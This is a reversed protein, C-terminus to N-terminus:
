RVSVRERVAAALEPNTKFIHSRAIAPTKFKGGVVMEDVMKELKTAADDNDAGPTGVPTTIKATKVVEDVAKFLKRVLAANAEDQSKLLAVAEDNSLGPHALADVESHLAKKLADEKLDALSKELAAAKAKEEDLAKTLKEAEGTKEALAAAKEAVEKTLAEHADVAKAPEAVAAAEPTKVDVPNEQGADDSKAARAPAKSAREVDDLFKTIQTVADSPAVGEPLSVADLANTVPEPAAPLLERLGAVFEDCSRQLLALADPSDSELIARCSEDFADRLRFWGVWFDQAALLEGTTPPADVAPAAPADAKFLRRVAASFKKFFSPPDIDDASKVFLVHAGQNAGRKVLSAERVRLSRIRYTKPKGGDACDTKTEDM